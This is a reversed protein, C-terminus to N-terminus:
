FQFGVLVSFTERPMISDDFSVDNRTVEVREDSVPVYWKKRGVKKREFFWLDQRRSFPLFYTGRIFLQPHGNFEMAFEGSFKLNFTRSGYYLNINKAKFKKKGVDFKGYDNQAQGIKRAYRLRDVGAVGRFYFPRGDTTLKLQYGLGLSIEKYISNAFEFTAGTRIFLNKSVHVDLDMTSIIEFDRKAYNDSLSLIESGSDDNYKVYLNNSETSILHTGLGVQFRVADYSKKGSINVGPELVVNIPNGEQDHSVVTRSALEISDRLAKVIKMYKPDFVQAAKKINRFQQVSEALKEKLPTTNYSKWFSDDYNGTEETFEDGRAIRDEYPIPGNDGTDIKTIKVENTYVGGNSYGGERLADSFYWKDQHKRYNVVYKNFRWNGAYLPYDNIKKLGKKTIEFEGRIFAYSEVDIFIEGKLRARDEALKKGTLIKVLNALGKSSSKNSKIVQDVKDPHPKFSIIYVPRDNYTTISELEYQYLDMLKKNLFHDRNKVFDFRHAAMHGSTLGANTTSDIPNKLNMLRGQELGVLGAKKNKYSKTYIKLVGEALYKHKLSDDTMSERYFGLHTISKTPYNNSINKIAKQVIDVPQNKDTVVIETLDTTSRKLKIQLHEKIATVKIKYTQYGLFSATMTSEKGSAPIKLSFVGDQGSTTGIGLSPIGVHAFGIAEKNQADTIRGTVRIYSQADAVYSTLMIVFLLFYNLKFVMTKM